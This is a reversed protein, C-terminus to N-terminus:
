PDRRRRRATPPATRRAARAASSARRLDRPRQLRRRHAGDPPRGEDRLIPLAGLLRRGHRARGRAAVTGVSGGGGDLATLDVQHARNPPSPGRSQDSSRCEDFWYRLDTLGELALHSCHEQLETKTTACQKLSCHERVHPPRIAVYRITPAPAIPVTTASSSAVCPWETRSSDRRPVPGSCSSMARTAPSADSAAVTVRRAFPASAIKLQALGAYWREGRSQGMIAFASRPAASSLPAPRTM